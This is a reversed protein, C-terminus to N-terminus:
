LPKIMHMCEPKFGLNEYFGQAKLNNSFVEVHLLRLDHEKAWIEAEEILSKGISLGQAEPTVALLPVTGSVEGSVEDNRTRVHIFGMPVNGKEAVLTIHPTNTPQLMETIYDDQMKLVVQEAHWSLKAVGALTPSLSFIFDRDEEIAERIIIKTTM